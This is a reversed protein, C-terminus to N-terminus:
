SGEDDQPVVKVIAELDYVGQLREGPQCIVFDSTDWEGDVLKRILELSGDLVLLQKGKAAMRERYAALHGFDGIEPQDIFIAIPNDQAATHQPHLTEWIFAANDEGYQTVLEAYSRGFCTKQRFKITDDAGDLDDNSPREQYGVATFGQSPNSGFHEAFAEKSGLYLTCCDHARPMVMPYRRSRVGLMANGCLGFGILIADYAIDGTEAADVAAQIRTRLDDPEHAGKAIYEVDVIHPSRAVCLGAERTLVECAILKLRM